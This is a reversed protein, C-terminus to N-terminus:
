NLIAQLIRTYNDDLKKEMRRTLTWMTCGYLLISVVVAQFSSRKMKDTVESKWVVSLRDIATLAKAIQTNIDRKTSSVSSGLSNFKDVLKLSSSNLTSYIILVAFLIALELEFGPHLEKYKM